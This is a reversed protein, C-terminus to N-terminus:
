YEERLEKILIINLIHNMKKLQIHILFRTCIIIKQFFGKFNHILIGIKEYGFYEHLIDKMSKILGILTKEELLKSIIEMGKIFNFKNMNLMEINEFEIIKQCIFSSITILVIEDLGAFGYNNDNKKKKMCREAQLAGIVEGTYPNVIGKLIFDFRKLLSRKGM